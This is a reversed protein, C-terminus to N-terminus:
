ATLEDYLAAYKEAMVPASFEKVMEKSIKGMTQRLESNNMLKKMAEYLADDDDDAILIGNEQALDRVGGVDTAIVPLGCAMAELASLSLGERHASSIYIDSVALHEKPSTIFGTFETIHAIGLKQAESKLSNHTEGDGVLILKILDNNNNYLRSFARLILSQNKNKDQRSTNIFTFLDHTISAFEEINIGNNIYRVSYDDLHWYNKIIDQNYKSIGVLVIKRRKILRKFIIKELTRFFTASPSTHVTALLLIDNKITWFGALIGRQHAHVIDPNSKKIQKLLPSLILLEASFRFIRKIIKNLLRFPTNIYSLLSSKLFIIKCKGSKQLGLMQKELLSDTKGDTCIITLKYKETNLHKVLEYVVRQAGGMDLEDIVITVNM